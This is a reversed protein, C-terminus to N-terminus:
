STPRIAKFGNSRKPGNLMRINQRMLPTHQASDDRTMTRFCPQRPRPAPTSPPNESQPTDCPRSGRE